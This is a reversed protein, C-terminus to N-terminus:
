NSCAKWNVSLTLHLIPHKRTCCPLSFSWIAESLFFFEFGICSFFSITIWSQPLLCALSSAVDAADKTTAKELSWLPICVSPTLVQPCNFFNLLLFCTHLFFASLILPTRFSIRSKSSVAYSGAKTYDDHSFYVFM